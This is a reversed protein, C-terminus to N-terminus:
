MGPDDPGFLHGGISIGRDVIALYVLDVHPAARFHHATGAPLRSIDGVRFQSGESDDIGGQVVLVTEQGLHEHEPFVAGAALRVFGVIANAHRPARPLHYLALGEFPGPEWSEPKDIGALLDAVIERPLDLLDTVADLVLAFRSGPTWQRMLRDRLTSPPTTLAPVLLESLAAAEDDDDAATQLPDLRDELVAADDSDAQVGEADLADAWLDSLTRPSM